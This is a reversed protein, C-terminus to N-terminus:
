QIEYEGNYVKELINESSEAKIITSKSTKGKSFLFNLKAQGSKKGKLIMTAFVSPQTFVRKDKITKVGTIEVRGKEPDINKRPYIPFISGPQIEIVELIKKDFSLVADAGNIEQDTKLIIDIKFEQGNKFEKENPSLRLSSLPTSPAERNLFGILWIAAIFVLIIFLPKLLFKLIKM